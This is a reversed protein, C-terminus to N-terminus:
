ESPRGNDLKLRQGHESAGLILVLALVEVVPSNNQGSLVSVLVIPGHVCHGADV